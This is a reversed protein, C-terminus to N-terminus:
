VEVVECGAAVPRPRTGGRLRHTAQSAIAPCHHSSFVEMTRFPGLNHLVGKSVMTELDLKM